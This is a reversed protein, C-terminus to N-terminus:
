LGKRTTKRGRQNKGKGQGRQKLIRQVKRPHLQIPVGLKLILTEFVRIRQM